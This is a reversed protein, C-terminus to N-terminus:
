QKAEIKNEQESIKVESSESAPLTQAKVKKKQQRLTIHAEEDLSVIYSPINIVNGNILVKKHVVMQRAQKPTSALKKKFIISPLRRQLLNEINLALVDAITDTKFGIKKLKDFLVKQEEPTSKALSKARNRFYKIKAISKWVEKKNKLGYKRLLSNEESIRAKIYLKRPRVFLKKKRIM